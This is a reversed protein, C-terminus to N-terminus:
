SNGKERWLCKWILHKNGEIADSVSVLGSYVGYVECIRGKVKKEKALRRIQRVWHPSECLAKDCPSLMVPPNLRLRTKEVEVVFMTVCLLLGGWRVCLVSNGFSLM